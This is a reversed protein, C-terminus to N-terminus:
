RTIEEIYKKIKDKNKKIFLIMGLLTMGSGLIIFATLIWALTVNQITVADIVFGIMSIFFTILGLVILLMELRIKKKLSMNLRM